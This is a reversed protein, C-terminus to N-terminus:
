TYPYKKYHRWSAALESGLPLDWTVGQGAAPDTPLHITVSSFQSDFRLLFDGMCSCSTRLALPSQPRVPISGHTRSPDMTDEVRGDAAATSLMPLPAKETIAAHTHNKEETIAAHTPSFGADCM